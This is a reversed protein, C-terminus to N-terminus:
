SLNKFHKHRDGGTIPNVLTDGFYLQFKVADAGSEIALNCMSKATEFSGEHNGGIEAIYFVKNKNSKFINNSFESDKKM